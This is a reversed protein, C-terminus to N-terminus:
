DSKLPQLAAEIAAKEPNDIKLTDERLAQAEKITGEVDEPTPPPEDESKYEQSYLKSLTDLAQLHSPHWQDTFAKSQRLEDIQQRVPSVDPTPEDPM